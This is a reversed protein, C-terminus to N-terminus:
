TVGGGAAMGGRETYSLTGVKERNLEYKRSHSQNM